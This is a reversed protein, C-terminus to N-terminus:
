RSRNKELRELFRQIAANVIRPRELMVMHGAGQVIVLESGAIREHLFRSCSPPTLRDEAGCVILTPVNVRQLRDSADFRAAAELDALLVDAPTAQLLALSKAKLRPDAASGFWWDILRPALRLGRGDATIGARLAAPVSLRACTGILILAHVERPHSLEWALAIAGGLSHGAVVRPSSPGVQARLAEVYAEVDRPAGGHRSAGGDRPTGGDRSTGGDRFTGAAAGDGHGALDPAVARPFALLQQQWVLGRGGAGHLFLLAARAVMM